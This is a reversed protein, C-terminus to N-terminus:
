VFRQSHRILRRAVPYHSPINRRPSECFDTPRAPTGLSYFPAGINPSEEYRWHKSGRLDNRAALVVDIHNQLVRM